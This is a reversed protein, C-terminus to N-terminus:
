KTVVVKPAAEFSVREGDVNLRGVTDPVAADLVIDNRPDRGITHTGAALFHLGSITVFDRRYDSEHKQRWAEFQTVHDAPLFTVGARSPSQQGCAATGVLCTLLLWRLSM